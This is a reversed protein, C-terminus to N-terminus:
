LAKANHWDLGCWLCQRARPTAVIRQCRSCRNITVEEPQEALIRERAGRRFAAIGQGLAAAVEPDNQSGWRKRISSAMKESAREAKWDATDANRVKWEFATLLHRYNHWVYDTLERDGNYNAPDWRM